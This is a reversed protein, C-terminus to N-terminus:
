LNEIETRVDKWFEETCEPGWGYKEALEKAVWCGVGEIEDVCILACDKAQSWDTVKVGKYFKRRLEHAKEVATISM